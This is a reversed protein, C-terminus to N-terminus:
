LHWVKQIKQIVEKNSCISLSPKRLYKKAADIIEKSSISELRLLIKKDHDESLGIGLLHAKHEARQSISQLSHAMQGRYKIKLINLEEDSLESEIIKEWCEKLLQLTLLAKEETTSAHIIFPAQNERIPHYIGAEYVVGYKERLVKFLLSSMGYGLYCSLLRLLIDAENAYKITAKGLILIVQQTNISKTYITKKQINKFELRNNNQAKEHNLEIKNIINFSPLDKIYNDINAPFNGSIVLHKNKYILSKAISLLNKKNIKNIDIIKGLPDHGYPGNGYIMTRWGDYALQYKSEKQRNIAKITLDKELEIQDNELLPKTIMWGILPFLKYADNEICKLSILIGDEYTECNLNAGYSEVIEALENNNYPGCGRLITSSLIQHIGKKDKPDARSGDEIWLKAAIINKSNCKDLVINM